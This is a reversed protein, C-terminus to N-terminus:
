PRRREEPHTGTLQRGIEALDHGVTAQLRCADLEIWGGGVTPRVNPDQGNIFGGVAAGDYSVEHLESALRTDGGPDDTLAFAKARMGESRLQVQIAAAM